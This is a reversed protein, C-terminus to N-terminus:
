TFNISWKDIYLNHVKASCLIWGIDLDCQSFVYFQVLRVINHEEKYYLFFVLNLLFQVDAKSLCMYFQVHFYSISFNNVM